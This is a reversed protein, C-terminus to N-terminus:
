KGDKKHKKKRKPWKPTPFSNMIQTLVRGLSDQKSM